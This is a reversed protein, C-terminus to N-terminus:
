SQDQFLAFAYLTSVQALAATARRVVRPEAWRSAPPIVNRGQVQRGATHSRARGHCASPRRALSQDDASHACPLSSRSNSLTAHKSELTEGSTLGSAGRRDINESHTGYAVEVRRFRPRDHVLNLLASQALLSYNGRM